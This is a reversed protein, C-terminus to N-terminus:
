QRNLDNGLTPDNPDNARTGAYGADAEGIGSGASVDSTASSYTEDAFNAGSTAGPRDSSAAGYDRSGSYDGSAGDDYLHGTQESAAAKLTRTIAVGAAFCGALFLGPHNRAANRAVAQLENPSKNEISRSVDELQNAVTSFARTMWSEEVADSAARLDRAALGLAGTAQAKRTEAEERARQQANSKLEAATSRAQDKASDFQAHAEGSVEHAVDGAAGKAEKAKQSATTKAKSATHKVAEAADRVATETEPKVLKEKADHAKDNTTDDM